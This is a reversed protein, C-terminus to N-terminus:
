WSHPQYTPGWDTGLRAKHQSSVSYSFDQFVIKVYSYGPYYQMSTSFIAGDAVRKVKHRVAVGSCNSVVSTSAYAFGPPEDSHGGQLTCGVGNAGGHTWPGGWSTSGALASGVFVSTVQAGGLQAARDLAQHRVRRASMGVQKDSEVSRVVRLVVLHHASQGNRVM